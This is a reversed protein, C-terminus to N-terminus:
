SVMKSKMSASPLTVNIGDPTLLRSREALWGRRVTPHPLRLLYDGTVGDAVITLLAGTKTVHPAQTFFKPAFGAYMPWVDTFGRLTTYTLIEDEVGCIKPKYSRRTASFGHSAPQNGITFEVRGDLEYVAEGNAATITVRAGVVPEGSILIAGKTKRAISLAQDEFGTHEPFYHAVLGLKPDFALQLGEIEKPATRLVELDM